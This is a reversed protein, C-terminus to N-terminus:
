CPTHLMEFCLVSDLGQQGEVLGSFGTMVKTFRDGLCLVGGLGGNSGLLGAGVILEDDGCEEMIDAMEEIPVIELAMGLDSDDVVVAGPGGEECVEAETGADTSQHFTMDRGLAIEYGGVCGVAGLEARGAADGKFELAARHCRVFGLGEGAVGM